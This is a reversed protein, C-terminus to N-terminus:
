RLSLDAYQGAGRDAIFRLTDGKLKVVQCNPGLDQQGFYLDRCFFGDQWRWAGTVPKGFARGQIQGSSLVDLRIGLRTLQKGQVVSVFSTRDTIPRFEEASAASAGALATLAFFTARIM